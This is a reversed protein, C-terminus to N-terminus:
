RIPIKDKVSGNSSTTSFTDQEVVIEKENMNEAEVDYNNELEEEVSIDEQDFPLNVAIFHFKSENNGRFIEHFSM